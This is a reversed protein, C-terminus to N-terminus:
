LNINGTAIVNDDDLDGLEYPARPPVSRKVGLCALLISDPLCVLLVFVVAMAAWIYIFAYGFDTFLTEIRTLLQLEFVVAKSTDHGTVKQSLIQGRPGMNGSTSDSSCRFMNFGNESARVADGNFHRENIANWNWSPQLFVDVKNFGAQAIYQPFDLDFCIAGGFTLGCLLDDEGGGCDTHKYIPVQPPGPKVNSEIFPVPFAKLYNWAVDGKPNILVFQNTFEYGSSDSPPLAKEYALGLFSNSKSNRVLEQGRTILAYEEDDNKIGVSEEAWMVIKDGAQLRAATSEWLEEYGPDSTTVDWGFLCSVPVYPRILTQVNAQYFQGRLNIFSAITILIILGLTYAKGVGINLRNTYFLSVLSAFTSMVFCVGAIGFIEAVYKLPTIDLVANAPSIFTSFISGILLHMITTFCCPYVMPVFYALSFSTSFDSFDRAFKLSPCIVLLFYVLGIGAGAGASLLLTLPTNEPFGFLSSFGLMTGLAYTLLILGGTKLYSSRSPSSSIMLDCGILLLIPQILTLIAVANLSNGLGWFVSSLIILWMGLNSSGAPGDAAPSANRNYCEEVPRYLLKSTLASM